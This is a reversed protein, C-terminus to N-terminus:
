CYIIIQFDFYRVKYPFFSTNLDSAKDLINYTVLTRMGGFSKRSFTLFSINLNIHDPLACLTAYLNKIDLFSSSPNTKWIYM